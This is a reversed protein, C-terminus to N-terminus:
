GDFTGKGALYALGREYWTGAHKAINDTVPYEDNKTAYKQDILRMIMSAVQERTVADDPAMQVEAVWKGGIVNGEEDTVDVRHIAPEYGFIYAYEVGNLDIPKDSPVPENTPTPTPKAEEPIDEPNDPVVIEVEKQTELDIIRGDIHWSSDGNEWKLVYWESKYNETTLDSWNIVNGTNSKIYGKTSFKEIVNNLVVSDDPVQTLYACIDDESVTNGIALSFNNKQKERLESTAVIDTFYLKKQSKVNDETDMREGNVQIYFSVNTHTIYGDSDLYKEEAACVTAAATLMMCVSMLLAFFKKM